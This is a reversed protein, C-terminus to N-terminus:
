KFSYYIAQSWPHDSRGQKLLPYKKALQRKAEADALRKDGVQEALALAFAEIEKGEVQLGPFKASDVEPLIERWREAIPLRRRPGFPQFEALAQDFQEPTVNM